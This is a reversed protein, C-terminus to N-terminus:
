AVLEIPEGIPVWRVADRVEAPATTLERELDARGERFHSWGEYHVPVTTHPRILTLLEVAERATLTYHLPGTVGFQVRGVHLLCVGVDIRGAVERVGDYLVTDGSIWLAGHEQGEWALAFGILRRRHPPQVRPWPPV